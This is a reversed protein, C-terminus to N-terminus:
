AMRKIGERITREGVSSFGFIFENGPPKTLYYAAASLLQVRNREAREAVRPDDFAAMLHMGAADGLIHVRDGFNRALAGALAERRAGYLRRMRRIHRELHGERMFDYLAKQELVPTSRDQLWKARTFTKVLSRPVILYGIRLGPFMVKSFTGIYIVPVDGALGQLSPLPPGSYRYESSYDDEVIVAGSRRAWAILELRTALSMSVGTPFQHSPTIYVLKTKRGLDSLVVGEASVALPRLRAGAAEFIRRAGQYGPNEFGVEDGPSILLRACLDLSQQSGNVVVVQDFTAHVARMRSVYSAIEARMPPYGATYDAYDFVDAKAARLHRNMLKRWLAFPFSSLDPTGNPFFIVGPPAVTRHYDYSLGAGFRTLRIPAPASISPESRQRITLMADPLERCVFTGSGRASELYGEAILQDYAETVTSRAVDLTAALERTSPVSQGPRFRGSLIAERWQEYIQRRLPTSSARDLLAAFTM